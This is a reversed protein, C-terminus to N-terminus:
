GQTQDCTKQYVPVFDKIDHLMDKTEVVAKEGITVEKEPYRTILCKPQHVVGERGIMKSFLIRVNEIMGTLILVLSLAQQKFDPKGLIENFLKLAEAAKKRVKKNPAFFWAPLVILRVNSAVKRMVKIRVKMFEDPTPNANKEYRLTKPDWVLGQAERTNYDDQAKKYGKLATIALNLAGPGGVLYKKKFANKLYKAHKKRDNIQYSGRKEFVTLGGFVLISMGEELKFSLSKNANRFFVASILANDDKLTFYIHGSSHYTLNYIEGKIWIGTFEKSSELIRKINKTIETVTYIREEM